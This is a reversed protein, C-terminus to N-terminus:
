WQRDNYPTDEVGNTNLKEVMRDLTPKWLNKFWKTKGFWKVLTPSIAYYTYIFARGYWTEALTYDRFRRLTWVQPCDYSGYVATAVYCGGSEKKFQKIAEEEANPNIELYAIRDKLEQVIPNIYSPNAELFYPEFTEFYMNEMYLDLDNKLVEKDFVCLLSVGFDKRRTADLDYIRHVMQILPQTFEPVNFTDKLVPNTLWNNAIWLQTLCASLACHQYRSKYEETRHEKWFSRLSNILLTNITLWHNFYEIFAAKIREEDFPVEECIMPPISKSCKVLIDIYKPIEAITCTRAACYVSFFVGRWNGSDMESIKTYLAGAHEYDGIEFYNKASDLLEKINETAM